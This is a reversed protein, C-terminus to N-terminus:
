DRKGFEIAELQEIKGSNVRFRLATRVKHFGQLGCAGPNICLMNNMRPDRGVRLIHSHGCIFIDPRKAEIIQKAEKRYKGPLGGIHTMYFKLGEMLFLNHEPFIQRFEHGDANGWVGRVPIRAKEFERFLEMNLWDGAHWVEDAQKAHHMIADDVYGHNDSLLLIKRMEAKGYFGVM